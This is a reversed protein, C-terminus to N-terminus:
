SEPRDISRSSSTRKGPFFVQEERGISRGQLRKLVLPRSQQDSFSGAAERSGLTLLNHNKKDVKRCKVVSQGGQSAALVMFFHRKSAAFIGRM